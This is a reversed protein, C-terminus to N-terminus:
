KKFSLHFYVKFPFCFFRSELSSCSSKALSILFNLSLLFQSIKRNKEDIYKSPDGRGSHKKYLTIRRWHWLSTNFHLTKRRWLAFGFHLLSTQALWRSMQGKKHSTKACRSMQGRKRQVSLLCKSDSFPGFFPSEGKHFM